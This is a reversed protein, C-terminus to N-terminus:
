SGPMILKDESAIRTPKIEESADQVILVKNINETNMNEKLQQVEEDALIQKFQLPNTSTDILDEKKV